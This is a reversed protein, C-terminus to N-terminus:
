QPRADPLLSDIQKGLATGDPQRALHYAYHAHLCKVRDFDAIGAVGGQFTKLLNPSGEVLRRDVDTLMAWREDRYAAHDAHFKERLEPDAAIIAELRGVANHRELESLDRLLGPDHLYYITPFPELKGRRTRM